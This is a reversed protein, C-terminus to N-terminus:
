LRKLAADIMLEWGEKLGGCTHCSYGWHVEESCTTMENTPERMAEIAARAQMRYRWWLRAEPPYAVHTMVRESVYNPDEDPNLRDLKCLARAVKEIMDM